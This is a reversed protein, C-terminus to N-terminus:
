GLPELRLTTPELKHNTIWAVDQPFHAYKRLYACSVRAQTAGDAVPVARVSLRRNETCVTGCSTISLDRHWRGPSVEVSRVYACHDDVVVWLTTQHRTGDTSEVEIQIEEADNLLELENSPFQM